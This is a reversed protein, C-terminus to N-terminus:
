VNILQRSAFRDLTIDILFHLLGEIQLVPRQQPDPQEFQALLLVYQHQGLVVDDGIAPRHRDHDVLQHLAILGGRQAALGFQRRQRNLVGVVGEPLAVPKFHALLFALKRVPLLMQALLLRNQFQGGISRARRQTAVVSRSQIDLQIGRQQVVELSQRPLLADGQEHQQQRRQLGQQVAIAALGIYADAHGDGVASAAFGLPQDTEEDVGLHELGVEVRLGGHGPQQLLDLLSSDLGLGM